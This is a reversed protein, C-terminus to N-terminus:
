MHEWEALIADDDGRPAQAVVVPEAESMEIQLGVDKFPVDEAESDGFMSVTVTKHEKFDAKVEISKLEPEIYKAVTKHCNFQLDLDAKPNHAIEVIALIPHYNPWRKRIEALLASGQKAKTDFLANSM